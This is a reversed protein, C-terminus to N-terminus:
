QICCFSILHQLASLHGAVNYEECRFQQFISEFVMGNSPWRKGQWKTALAAPYGLYMAGFIRENSEIGLRHRAERHKDIFLPGNAWLCTGIGKVQAYYMMNALAYQASVDSLPVKKDGVIFILATPMSHFAHGEQLAAEIKPRARDMEEAYGLWEALLSALRSRYALQHIRRCNAVIAQDVVHILSEDDVIITRLHFAHTPAFVGYQAIEELLARDIKTRKFRRISHRERFLEDM